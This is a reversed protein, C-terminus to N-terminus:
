LNIAIKLPSCPLVVIGEVKSFATTRENLEREPDSSNFSDIITVRGGINLILLWHSQKSASAIIAGGKAIVRSATEYFSPWGCYSVVDELRHTEFPLNYNSIQADLIARIQYEEFGMTLHHPTLWGYLQAADLLYRLTDGAAEWQTEPRLMLFNAVAYLGCMGDAHGQQLVASM